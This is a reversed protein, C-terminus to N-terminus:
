EYWQHQRCIFNILTDFSFTGFLIIYHTTHLMIVEVSWTDNTCISAFSQEARQLMSHWNHTCFFPMCPVRIDTSATCTVKNLYHHRSRYAEAICRVRCRHYARTCVYLLAHIKRLSWQQTWCQANAILSLQLLNYIDRGIVIGFQSVWPKHAAQIHRWHTWM